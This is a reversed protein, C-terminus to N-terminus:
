TGKSGAHRPAGGAAATPDTYGPNRLRRMLLWKGSRVAPEAHAALSTEFAAPAGRLLFFDYPWAHEEWRFSGPSYASPAVRTAGARLRVPSLPSDFVYPSFGGGVLVHYYDTDHIHPDFIRPDLEPSDNDFVLPLLSANRPMAQLLPLVEETERSIRNQKLASLVILCVVLLGAIAGSWRRFRLRGALMALLFYAVVALRRNVYTFFHDFRFPLLLVGALCLAALLLPVQHSGRGKPGESQRAGPEAFRGAALALVLVVWLALVTPEPGNTLRMGAFPAVLYAVNRAVGLWAVRQVAQTQAAGEPLPSMSIWLVLLLAAAVPVALLRFPRARGPPSALAAIIAFAIFPKSRFIATM